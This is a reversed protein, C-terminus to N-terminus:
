SRLNAQLGRYYGHGLACCLSGAAAGPRLVRPDAWKWDAYPSVDPEGVGAPAADSVPAHVRPRGASITTEFLAMKLRYAPRPIEGTVLLDKPSLDVGLKLRGIRHILEDTSEGPLLSGAPLGWIGGLEPDDDRRQVLLWPSIALNEGGARGPPLPRAIVLAVSEKVRMKRVRGNDPPGCM